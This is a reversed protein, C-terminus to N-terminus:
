RRHPSGGVAPATNAARNLSSGGIAGHQQQLGPRDIRRPGEWSGQRPSGDDYRRRGGLVQSGIMKVVELGLVQLAVIHASQLGEAKLHQQRRCRLQCSADDREARGVVLNPLVM